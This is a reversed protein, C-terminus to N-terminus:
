DLLKTAFIRYRRSEWPQNVDLCYSKLCVRVWPPDRTTVQSNTPNESIPSELPIGLLQSMKADLNEASPNKGFFKVQKLQGYTLNARLNVAVINVIIINVVIAFFSLALIVIIIVIDIVRVIIIITVHHHFHCHCCSPHSHCQSHHFHGCQHHHHHRHRPCVDCHPHHHCRYRCHPHQHGPHHCHCPRHHPHHQCHHLHHPHLCNANFSVHHFM